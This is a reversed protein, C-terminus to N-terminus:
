SFVRDGIKVGSTGQEHRVWEEGRGRRRRAAVERGEDGTGDAAEDGAEDLQAPFDGPRGARGTLMGSGCTRTVRKM